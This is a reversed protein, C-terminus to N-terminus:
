GAGAREEMGGCREPGEQGAPLSLDEMRRRKSKEEKIQNRRKSKIRNAKQKQRGGSQKIAM